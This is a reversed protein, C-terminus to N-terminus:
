LDLSSGAVCMFEIEGLRLTSGNLFFMCVVHKVSWVFDLVWLFEGYAFFDIVWLICVLLFM